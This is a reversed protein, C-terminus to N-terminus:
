EPDELLILRGKPLPEPKAVPKPAPKAQQRLGPRQMFWADDIDVSSQARGQFAQIGFQNGAGIWGSGVGTIRAVEAEEYAEQRAREMAARMAADKQEFRRQEELREQQEKLQAFLLQQAPDLSKPREFNFNGGMFPDLLYKEALGQVMDDFDNKSLADQASMPLVEYAIDTKPKAKEDAM